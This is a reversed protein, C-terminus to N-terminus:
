HSCKEQASITMEKFADIQRIDSILESEWVYAPSGDYIQHTGMVYNYESQILTNREETIKQEIAQIAEDKIEAQKALQRWDSQKDEIRKLLYKHFFRPYDDRIVIQVLNEIVESEGHLSTFGDKTRYFIYHIEFKPEQENPLTNLFSIVSSEAKQGFPCQSMVFLELTNEKKLVFRIVEFQDKKKAFGRAVLSKDKFHKLNELHDGTIKYKGQKGKIFWTGSEETVIGSFTIEDWIPQNQAAEIKVALSRVMKLAIQSKEDLNGFDSISALLDISKEAVWYKLLRLLKANHVTVTWFINDGTKAIKLDFGITGGYKKLGAASADNFISYENM